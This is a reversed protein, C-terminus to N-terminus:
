YAMSENSQQIYNSLNVFLLVVKFIESDVYQKAAREDKMKELQKTLVSYKERLRHQESQLEFRENELERIRSKAKDILPFFSSQFEVIIGRIKSSRYRYLGIILAIIIIKSLFVSACSTLFNIPFFIGL